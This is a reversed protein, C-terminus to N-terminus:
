PSVFQLAERAIMLEEETHIVLVRGPSDTVSIDSDPRNAANRAPDLRLGLCELGQCVMARLSPSNEGVRDTFSLIDVGGTGVALAGIAARVRDAFIDVALRARANGDEAAREIAAFDSSVGSIGLLGSGYNLAADLDDATLGYRRIVHSLIGPDLSGPRTAMILGDLPTFGMTSAVATDGRIAAASCGGGLHCNIIRLGAPDRGLIEAARGACYQHSIGHFGFRRVGWDCHWSYPLPFVYQRPPLGAFFATDFVAVQRAHPLAAEAASIATLAPLNHLPAVASWRAISERVPGDIVASRTFEAGTHVVRHGVAQIEELTRTGQPGAEM